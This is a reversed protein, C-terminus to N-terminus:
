RKPALTKAACASKGAPVQEYPNDLPPAAACDVPPPLARSMGPRLAAQYDAAAPQDAMWDDHGEWNMADAQGAAMCAMVILALVRRM